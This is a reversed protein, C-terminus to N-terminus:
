VNLEGVKEKQLKRNKEIIRPVSTELFFLLIKKKVEEPMGQKVM